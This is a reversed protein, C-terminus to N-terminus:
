TNCVCHHWEPAIGLVVLALVAGFVGEQLFPSVIMGPSTRGTQGTWVRVPGAPRALGYGSQNQGVAM